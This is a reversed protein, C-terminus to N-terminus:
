LGLLGCARQVAQIFGKINEKQANMKAMDVDVNNKAAEFEQKEKRFELLMAQFEAKDKLLQENGENTDQRMKKTDADRQSMYINYDSTKKDIQAQLDDKTKQTRELESKVNELRNEWQVMETQIQKASKMAESMQASM